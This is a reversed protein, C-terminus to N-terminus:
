VQFFGQMTFQLADKRNYIYNFVKNENIDLKDQRVDM